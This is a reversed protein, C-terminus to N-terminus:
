ITLVEVAGDSAPRRTSQLLLLDEALARLSATQAYAALPADVGLEARVRSALEILKLSDLGLELPCREADVTDPAANVLDAVHRRLCRLPGIEESAPAAVPAEAARPPAAAPLARAPDAAIELYDALLAEVFGADYHGSDYSAVVTLAGGAAPVVNVYLRFDAEGAEPAEEAVTLGALRLPRAPTNQLGFMLPAAGPSPGCLTAALRTPLEHHELAGAIGRGCGAVLGAFDSAAGLDVRLPHLAVFYGIIDHLAPVTRGAAPTLIAFDREGTREAVLVGFAAFLAAFLSTGQGAALERLAEVVDVPIELVAQRRSGAAGGSRSADLGVLPPQGELYRAWHERLPESLAPDAARAQQWAAYQAFSTRLAPLERGEHALEVEKLLVDLSWADFVVHHAVLVLVHEDEGVRQVGARFLRDSGLDFPKSALGEAPDLRWDEPAHFRQEGAGPFFSRLGQHRAWVVALARELAAVDLPGQLRYAFALNQATGGV